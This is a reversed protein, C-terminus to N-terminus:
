ATIREADSQYGFVRYRSRGAAKAEYLAQDACRLVDEITTDSCEVLAVGISVGIRLANGAYSIDNSIEQILKKCLRHLSAEDSEFVVVVFEDGGLRACIDTPSLAAQLRRGVERLVFDGAEHGYTDNVPKFRDLDLFLVACQAEDRSLIDRLTQTFMARNPLGTVTDYLAKQMLTRHCEELAAVAQQATDAVRLGQRTIFFLFLGFVTGVVLVSPLVAVLMERGPRPATVDLTFGDSADSAKLFLNHSREPTPEAQVLRLTKLNLSNRLPILEGNPVRDGFLLVSPPGDDANVTADAGVSLVSAAAFIPEGEVVLLATAVQRPALMRARDVLERVGKLKSLIPEAMLQGNAVSYVEIGQPNFVSAYEVSLDNSLNKGFNDQNYAWDLDVALHLHAYAAGWDAYTVLSQELRKEKENLLLRVFNTTQQLANRDQHQAIGIVFAVALAYAIAVASLIFLLTKRNFAIAFHTTQEM